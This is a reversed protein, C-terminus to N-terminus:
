VFREKSAMYGPSSLISPSFPKKRRCNAPPPSSLLFSPSMEKNVTRHNARITKKYHEFPVRLLQRELKLSETSHSLKSPPAVATAAASYGKPLPEPEPEM